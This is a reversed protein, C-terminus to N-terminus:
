PTPQSKNRYLLFSVVLVILILFVTIFYKEWFGEFEIPSDDGVLVFPAWYFPPASPYLKIYDLKAQRLAEDKEKGAKLHSYFFQMLESTSEDDVKWLSMVINPCGAYKFAHALSIIGEGRKITGTGTECASLVALEANLEMEYIEYAHLIGDDLESEKLNSQDLSNTGLRGDVESLPLDFVLGSYLPEKEDVFGHMALHIIKQDRVQSKFFAETANQGILGDGGTLNIIKDVEVRNFNLPSFGDRLEP